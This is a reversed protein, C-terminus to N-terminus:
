CSAQWLLCDLQVLLKTEPMEHSHGAPLGRPIGRPINPSNSAPEWAVVTTVQYMVTYDIVHLCRPIHGSLAQTGRQISGLLVETWFRQGM